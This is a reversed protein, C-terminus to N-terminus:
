FDDRKEIGIHGADRFILREDGHLWAAATILEHV